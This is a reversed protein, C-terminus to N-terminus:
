KRGAFLQKYLSGCGFMACVQCASSINESFDALLFVNFIGQLRVDSCKKPCSDCQLERPETQIDEGAKDVDSNDTLSLNRKVFSLCQVRSKLETRLLESNESYSKLWLNSSCLFFIESMKFLIVIENKHKNGM